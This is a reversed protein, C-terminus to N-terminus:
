AVLVQPSPSVARVLEYGQYRPRTPRKLSAIVQQYPDTARNGDHRQRAAPNAKVQFRDESWSSAGECVSSGELLRGGADETTPRPRWSQSLHQIPVCRSRRGHNSAKHRRCSPRVGQQPLILADPGVRYRQRSASSAPTTPSAAHRGPVPVSTQDAWRSQDSPRGPRSRWSSWPGVRHYRSPNLAVLNIRSQEM